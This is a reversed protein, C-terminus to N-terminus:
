RTPETERVDTESGQGQPRPPLTRDALVLGVWAAALLCLVALGVWQTSALNWPPIRKLDARLFDIMFRGGSYLIAGVLFRRGPRRRWRDPPFSLLMFILFCLAASYLQTPHVPLSVPADPGIWGHHLHVNYAFSGRPFSVGWPLSTPQGYATGNLFDGVRIIGIGLFAFRAYVDLYALVPQRRLLLYGVCGLLGGIAGGYTALSGEWLKLVRLPHAAYFAPNELVAYIRAGLILFVLGFFTMNLATEVPLGEEQASRTGLYIGLVLAVTISFFVSYILIKTESFPVSFTFLVPHM